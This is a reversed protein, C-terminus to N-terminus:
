RSRKLALGAVALAREMPQQGTPYDYDQGASVIVLYTLTDGDRVFGEANWWSATRGQPVPRFTVMWDEAPGVPTQLQEPAHVAVHKLGMSQAHSACGQQWAGLVDAATIATHEDPFVATIQTARDLKSLHSSFDRRVEHVAGIATLSARM